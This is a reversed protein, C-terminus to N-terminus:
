KGFTVVEMGLVTAYFESTIDLDKVTLVLHDLSTAHM